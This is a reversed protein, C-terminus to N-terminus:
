SLNPFSPFNVTTILVIPMSSGSSLLGELGPSSLLGVVGSSPLLGPSLLGLSLGSLLLGPEEFLGFLGFM